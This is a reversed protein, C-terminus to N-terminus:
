VWGRALEYLRGLTRVGFVFGRFMQPEADLRRYDAERRDLRDVMRTLRRQFGERSERVVRRLLEPELQRLMYRRADLIGKAIADLVIPNAPDGEALERELTALANQYHCCRQAVAADRLFAAELPGAPARKHALAVLGVMAVTMGHPIADALAELDAPTAAGRALRARVHRCTTVSTAFAGIMGEFQTALAPYRPLTEICARFHSMRARVFQIVPHVAAALHSAIQAQRAAGPGRVSAAIADSAGRGLIRDFRDTDAVDDLVTVAAGYHMMALTARRLRSPSPVPLMAAYGLPMWERFLYPTAPRIAESYYRPLEGLIEELEGSLGTLLSPLQASKAVFIDRYRPWEPAAQWLQQVASWTAPTRPTPAVRSPTADGRVLFPPSM